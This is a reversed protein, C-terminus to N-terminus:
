GYCLISMISKRSVYLVCIQGCILSLGLAFESAIVEFCSVLWAAGGRREEGHEWAVNVYAVASQQKCTAQAGKPSGCQLLSWHASVMFSAGSRLYLLLTPTNSM